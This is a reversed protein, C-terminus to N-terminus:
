VTQQDTHNSFNTISSHSDTSSPAGIPHDAIEAAMWEAVYNASDLVGNLTSDFLYDGVCFLNPNQMADPQHRRDLTVPTEGGPMANVAGIWRHVQGEIFVDRGHSLFSPLSDLAENILQQDDLESMRAADDGGLLWGLVGRDCGPDRSSEDYLCCGGFKDLMWYSDSFQNRWFPSEFLLTMRLYHAPYDYFDHHARMKAALGDCEYGISNFHALPLAVVVFDFEEVRFAESQVSDESCISRVQMSGQPTRVISEVRHELRFTASIRAILEQPLRENGGEIGYVGMYAPDNMLYNQLGYAVSTQRPEAALDSHMLNEIYQFSPHPKLDTLLSDFRQKQVHETTDSGHEHTHDNAHYFEQPTMMDKAMRDFQVVAQAADAGLHDAIDDMNALVQENMVVAPGGMPRIPLGLEKILEKLADEDFHSYDYFEAAGAEYGVPHSAFRPTLIKGGLRPSAEFVTIEVPHTALKQLAHATMLGGPGGGIIGVKWTKM